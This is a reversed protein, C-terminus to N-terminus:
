LRARVAASQCWVRQRRSRQLAGESGECFSAWADMLFRIAKGSIDHLHDLRDASLHKSATRCRRLESREALPTQRRHSGIPVTSDSIGELRSYSRGPPAVAVLKRQYPLVARLIREVFINDLWRGRGDMSIPIGAGRPMTTSAFRTFQCGQDTNYRAIALLGNPSAEPASGIWGLVEDLMRQTGARM